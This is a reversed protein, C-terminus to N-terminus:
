TAAPEAMRDLYRLMEAHETPTLDIQKDGKALFFGGDSIVACRFSREQVVQIAAAGHAALQNQMLTTLRREAPPSDITHATIEDTSGAKGRAKRKPKAEPAKAAAKQNALNAGGSAWEKGAATIHYKDAKEIYVIHEAAKANFMGNNFATRDASVDALLEERSLDGKAMLLACIQFRPSAAKTTRAKRPKDSEAKKPMANKRSPTPLSADASPDASGAAPRSLIAFPSLVPPEAAPKVATEADDDPLDVVPGLPKYPHAWPSNVPNPPVVSPADAAPVIRKVGREFDRGGLRAWVSDTM